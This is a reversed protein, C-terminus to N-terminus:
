KLYQKPPPSYFEKGYFPEAYALDAFKQHKYQPLVLPVMCAASFLVEDFIANAHDTLHQFKVSGNGFFHVPGKELWQDFSDPQLILNSPPMFETGEADYIATFVEMRRADIMPCLFGEVKKACEAMIRLTGVLILPIKLAFCLGKAASMGVRLGTYSGPGVSLGIANLQKIELNEQALLSMIAPLLWAAHDKQAGNRCEGLVRDDASLCISATELATDIHLIHTVARL